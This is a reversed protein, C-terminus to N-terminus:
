DQRGRWKRRTNVGHIESASIHQELRDAIYTLSDTVREILKRNARSTLWAQILLNVAVLIITVGLLENFM